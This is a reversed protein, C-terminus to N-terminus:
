SLNDILYSFMILPDKQYTDIYTPGTIWIKYALLCKGVIKFKCNHTIKNNNYNLSIRPVM